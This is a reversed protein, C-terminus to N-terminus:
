FTHHHLELTLLKKKYKEAAIKHIVIYKTKKDKKERDKEKTKTLKDTKKPPWSQHAEAQVPLWDSNVGNM